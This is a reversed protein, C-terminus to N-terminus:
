VDGDLVVHVVAAGGHVDTVVVAVSTDAQSTV